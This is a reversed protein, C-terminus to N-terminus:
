FKLKIKKFKKYEDEKIDDQNDDKENIFMHNINCCIGKNDCTYKIYQKKDINKVYNIFLLRHLMIKQKNFYFNIYKSKGKNKSVIKGTWLVCNDNNFIDDDINNLIKNISDNDLKYKIACNIKNDIFKKYLINKDM